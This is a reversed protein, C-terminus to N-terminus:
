GTRELYISDFIIGPLHEAFFVKVKFYLNMAHYRRQPFVDLLANSFAELVVSLRQDHDVMHRKTASIRKQHYSHLSSLSCVHIYRELLCNTAPSVQLYKEGYTEQVKTNLELNETM